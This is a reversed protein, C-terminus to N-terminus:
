LLVERSALAATVAAIDGRESLDLVGAASPVITFPEGVSLAAAVADTLEYEGRPSPAVVAAHEFITPTFAYCNMSVLASAGFRALTADDPKEVIATLSTSQRELLAFARVREAPINGYRVLGAPDFGVLGNDPVGRLAAMADVPYYNDSNLLLFRRGDVADKAALVADATGRPEQQVAFRVRIRRTPLADYYERVQTHEPGIVLIVETIGADAAASMAFDLFPRGVDIMGKVGREAMARQADSLDVGAAAKRMRSGLGRAMIVATTIDNSATSM